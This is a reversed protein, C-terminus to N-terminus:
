TGLLIFECLRRLRRKALLIFLLYKDISNKQFKAVKKAFDHKQQMRLMM